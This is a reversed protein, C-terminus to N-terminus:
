SSMGFCCSWWHRHEKDKEVKVPANSALFSHQQLSSKEEKKIVEQIGSLEKQAKQTIEKMIQNTRETYENPEENGSKSFPLVGGSFKKKSKEAANKIGTFLTNLALKINEDEIKSSFREAFRMFRGITSGMGPAIRLFFKGGEDEQVAIGNVVFKERSKNLGSIEKNMTVAEEPTLKVLLLFGLPIESVVDIIMSFGQLKM